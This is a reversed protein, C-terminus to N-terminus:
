EEEEKDSVLSWYEDQIMSDIKRLNEYEVTGLCREIAAMVANAESQEHAIAVARGFGPNSKAEQELAYWKRYAAKYEEYLKDKLRM